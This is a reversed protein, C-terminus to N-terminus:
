VTYYLISRHKFYAMIQRRLLYKTSATRGLKHWPSVGGGLLHSLCFGFFVIVFNQSLTCWGYYTLM